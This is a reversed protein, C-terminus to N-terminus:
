TAINTTVESTILARIGINYVTTHYRIALHHMLTIHMHIRYYSHMIHTHM